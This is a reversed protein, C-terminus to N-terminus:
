AVRSLVWAVDPSFRRRLRAVQHPMAGARWKTFAELDPGGHAAEAERYTEDHVADPDVSYHRHEIVAQPIYRILGTRKGLESWCNDIYFHQCSPEAFHGLELVIDSSMLVHEAVDSRRRDDPYVMGTGGLDELGMMLLVDWGETVYVLDDAGLMLAKYRPALQSAADNIATVLTGREVTIVPVDMGEYSPDDDDVVLYLDANGSATARFSAVCREALARRHRTPIFVCLEATVPAPV